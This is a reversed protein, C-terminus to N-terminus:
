SVEVSACLMECGLQVFRAHQEETLDFVLQYKGPRLPGIVFELDISGGPEVTAHRLGVKGAGAWREDRDLVVWAGHMGANGGPKFRWDAVSLNTCRVRVLREKGQSLRLTGGPVDLLEYVAKGSDPCYRELAWSRFTAPSHRWDLAALWREYQDFFRDIWGTRGFPLHGCMPGLQRRAAAYPTDTRLLLYLVSALGTRDAGQHCHFLLPYEARDIVEVLQRIGVTSPMRGASFGLDEQTVGLRATTLAQQQYWPLSPCCGRLNVVTRIGYRRVLRELREPSPQACRYVKGAEVTRFNGGLLVYGVHALLALGLLGALGRLLRWCLCGPRPPAPTTM